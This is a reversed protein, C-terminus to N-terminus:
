DHMLWVLYSFLILYLLAAAIANFIPWNVGEVAGILLIATALGGRISLSKEKYGVSLNWLQQLAPVAALCLYFARMNEYTTDIFGLFYFCFFVLVIELVDIAFTFGGYKETSENVLYSITFYIILGFAFYFRTDSIVNLSPTQALKQIFLVLGTGLVAPYYLSQVISKLQKEM